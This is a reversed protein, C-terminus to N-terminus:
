SLLHDIMIGVPLHTGMFVPAGGMIGPDRNIVPNSM